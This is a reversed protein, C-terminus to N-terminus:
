DLITLAKYNYNELIFHDNEINRGLMRRLLKMSQTSEMQTNRKELDELIEAFAIAKFYVDHIMICLM